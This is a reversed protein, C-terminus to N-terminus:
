SQRHRWRLPLLEAEEESWDALAEECAACFVVLVAGETNARQRVAETMAGGDPLDEEDVNVVYLRPKTSLLNMERLVEEHGEAPFGTAPNGGNLHAALKHLWDLETAFDRPRLKAAGSQREIRREVSAVDALILETDVIEIDAVPDPTEHIHTVDPGAFARLVMLVADVNRIHGLFQNGLGEGRSAGEVLGAIDVFEVTAPLVKEPKVLDALRQLRDDPVGAIGVNSEITTFPYAAVAAGAQTLANFLTSKGVNPLGVIGIQLGM